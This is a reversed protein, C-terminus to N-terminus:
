AMAISTACTRPSRRACAAASQHCRVEDFYVLLLGGGVHDLPRRRRNSSALDNRDRCVGQVGEDGVREIQVGYPLYKRGLATFCVPRKRHQYGVYQHSLFERTLRVGPKVDECAM